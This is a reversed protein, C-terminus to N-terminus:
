GSAAAPGPHGKADGLRGLGPSASDESQANVVPPEHHPEPNRHQDGAPGRRVPLRWEPTQLSDPNTPRM